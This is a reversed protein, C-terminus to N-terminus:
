TRAQSCSNCEEGDVEEEDDEMVSGGGGDCGNRSLMMRPSSELSLAAMIEPTLRRNSVIARAVDCCRARRMKVSSASM